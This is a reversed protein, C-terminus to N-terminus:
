EWSYGSAQCCLWCFAVMLAVVAIVGAVEGIVRWASPTKRAVHAGTMVDKATM